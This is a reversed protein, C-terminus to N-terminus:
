ISVGRGAGAVRPRWRHTAGRGDARSNASMEPLLTGTLIHDINRAARWRRAAPPMGAVLEPDYHFVARHNEMLRGAIRNLQLEVISRMTADGLPYYPVLTVRGLLAPKFTKLLEGHM